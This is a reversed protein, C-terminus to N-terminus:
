WLAEKLNEEYFDLKKTSNKIVIEVTYVIKNIKTDGYKVSEQKVDVVRGKYGKYFGTTVKVKKGYNFRMEQNYEM